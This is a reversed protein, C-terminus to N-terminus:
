GFTDGRFPASAQSAANHAAGWEIQRQVIGVAFQKAASRRFKRASNM